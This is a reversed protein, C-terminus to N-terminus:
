KTAPKARATLHVSAAQMTAGTDHYTVTVSDGDSILDTIPAKGGKAKVITGIGTGVVNTAADVTFTWDKGGGTVTLSNASVSKVKGSATKAAPKAPKDASKSGAGAAPVARVQAAHLTGGMDHYSVEVSSGVKVVDALKPGLAGAAQAKREKTGGGPAIVVTKIDVTFKMEKGAVSVTLVDAAIATVTGRATKTDDAAARVRISLGFVCLAVLPIALLRVQRM